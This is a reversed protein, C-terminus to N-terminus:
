AVEMRLQFLVVYGRPMAPPPLELSLPPQAPRAGSRHRMPLFPWYRPLFPPLSLRLRSMAYKRGYRATKRKRRIRGTPCEPPPYMVTFHPATEMLCTRKTSSCNLSDMFSGPNRSDHDPSYHFNNNIFLTVCQIYM